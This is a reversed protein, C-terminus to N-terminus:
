VEYLPTFHQFVVVHIQELSVSLSLHSTADIMAHCLLRDDWQFMFLLVLPPILTQRPADLYINGNM